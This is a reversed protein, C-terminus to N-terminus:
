REQDKGKRFSIIEQVPGSTFPADPNIFELVAKETPQAAAIALAPVEPLPHLQPPPLGHRERFMRYRRWDMRYMKIPSLKRHFCIIKEDSLGTVELPSILWVGQESLGQSSREQQDSQNYSHAYASTYWSRRAVYEATQLDNQRYFLWTEINDKITQAAKQGYAMDLQALSQIYLQFFINRSRMTAAYKELSPIAPNAGEDILLLVTKCAKEQGKKKKTDYTTILRKMISRWMLKIIPALADLDEEKWKLYVTVPKDSLMLEAPDFDSGSLIKVLQETLLARMRSTLTRYCSKLTRDTLDAKELPMELFRTALQPDISQLTQAIEPLGKNIMALVFPFPPHDIKRAALLLTTLMDIATDTFFPDKEDPVRLLETACSRLEQETHKGMLPDFRHGVGTVDIAYVPGKKERDGATELHLDGKTDNVVCSHKTTLLQTQINLGKGGGIPCVVIMNGYERKALTSRVCYFQKFFNPFYYSLGSVGLLFGYPYPQNMLLMAKEDANAYRAKHLRTDLDFPAFRYIGWFGLLLWLPIIAALVALPITPVLAVSSLLSPVVCFWLRLWQKWNLSFRITITFLVLAGAAGAIAIAYEVSITSAFLHWLVASATWLATCIAVNGLLHHKAILTGKIAITGKGM